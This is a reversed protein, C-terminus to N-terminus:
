TANPSTRPRLWAPLWGFSSKPESIEVFTLKGVEEAARRAEAAAGVARGSVQFQEERKVLAELEDPSYGSWSYSLGTLSRPPADEAMHRQHVGALQAALQGTVKELARLRQEFTPKAPKHKPNPKGKSKSAM